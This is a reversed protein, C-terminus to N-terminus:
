IVRAPERGEAVMPKGAADWARMGGAVNVADLGQHALWAVARGSRNGSRCVIALPRDGIPLEELQSPLDSMPIHVAEPAHGADWEDPERVDVMVADDPLDSVSVVPVPPQLSMGSM